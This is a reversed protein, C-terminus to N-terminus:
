ENDDKEPKSNKIYAIKYDLKRIKGLIPAIEIPLKNEIISLIEARKRHKLKYEFTYGLEEINVGLLQGYEKLKYFDTTKKYEDITYCAVETLEGIDELKFKSILKNVARKLKYPLVKILSLMIEYIELDDPEELIRIINSIKEYKNVKTEYEYISFGKDNNVLKWGITEALERLYGGAKNM